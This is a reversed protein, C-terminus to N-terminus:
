TYKEYPLHENTYEKQLPDEFKFFRHQWISEYFVILQTATLDPHDTTSSANPFSYLHFGLGHAFDIILLALM